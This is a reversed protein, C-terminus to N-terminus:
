FSIKIFVRNLHGNADISKVSVKLRGTGQKSFVKNHVTKIYGLFVDGKFVKVAFKDYENKPELEWRLVDGVALMDSALSQHSLGCIESVFSLEKVPYYDALFEFNDTAVLGQTQALIFFKDQQHAADIEWFDYYKKIDPRESKTLRLAFVDLVNQNYEKRLDPFDPYPVFGIEKAKQEDITYAFRVGQTSNKKIVGVVTRREGRAKRWTLYIYGITSSAM